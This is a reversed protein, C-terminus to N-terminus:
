EGLWDQHNHFYPSFSSSSSSLIYIGERFMLFFFNLFSFARLFIYSTSSLLFFCITRRLLRRNPAAAITITSFININLLNLNSSRCRSICSTNTRSYHFLEDVVRRSHNSTGRTTKTTVQVQIFLIWTIRSYHKHM